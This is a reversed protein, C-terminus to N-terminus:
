SAANEPVNDEEETTEEIDGEILSNNEAPQPLEVEFAVTEEEARDEEEGDEMLKKVQIQKERESPADLGKKAMELANVEVTLQAHTRTLHAVEKELKVMKQLTLTEKLAKHLNGLDDVSRLKFVISMELSSM